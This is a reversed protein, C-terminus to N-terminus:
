AHTDGTETAATRRIVKLGIYMILLLLVAGAGFLAIATSSWLSTVSVGYSFQDGTVIRAQHRGAPLFVSYCDNGKMPAFAIAQGDVSVDTPVNSLSVLMRADSSYEITADRFGYACSLINGTSSLIRTQLEHTSFSGVPTRNVAIRHKGAPVLFRQDRFMPQPTGDISLDSIERPLKLTFAAPSQVMWGDDSEAYQVDHALTYPLFTMDQPNVSQESYITLRPAGIAASRVLLFSETGTQILTPFPLVKEKERFTYINLDLMLKSRDGLLEAYQKGIAEYRLPDTSWRSHPDEVQLVFGYKKQLGLVDNMDVGLQERLEPSGFSDMATVIVQFGPKTAAIRYISSLLREYVEHLKRIRYNVVVEHVTPNSKWYFPSEPDFVKDLDIGRERKLELRASPHAPAFQKPTEFGKGSEFYLEALNVGDFDHAQLLQVYEATMAFVCGSDTLAVTYRWAAPADDGKLTKERWEPHEDWFKKSVQPPELWAYVLIGNAHALRILRDYDYTYKPYQHWGSVHVVRIGHSAWSRVLNEISYTTRNGPEFYVELKERQIFPRLHFYRRVHDLLYPYRSYGLPSNPDFRSSFFMVRGKGFKTGVLLPAETIEDVCFTREINDLEFKPVLEPFKWVIQEEPFFRDRIRFVRLQSQAFSIGLREALESKGDLIMNGGAAVYQTLVAQQKETLSDVIGNPVILLNTRSFEYPEGIFLTDVLVSVSNLVAAFSAQDNHSAGRAFQNWLLTPRLPRWSEDSKFVNEYLKGAANTVKETFTPEHERFETPEAKYYEGPKLDITKSVEGSLRHPSVIRQRIEGEADYYAELLYQDKLKISYSQSGCLIVRDALKVWHTQERMDLFNYNLSRLGDAIEKLLNLDLFSHFFVTSVGDRVQLQAKAGNLVQAVYEESAKKDPNLPIYGLNEPYVTQGFLDKYIIYPFFQSYDVNEISLRQECATSFFKSVTRYLKFSATYHPTEWVLPYLGNRMFEQIGLELKKAIGDETEGKIPSNTGDDWFEFDAATVGKYQHTVGHMVITAGNRVMYQLADVLEPKDSLSLRTGEGPDVFFPIVGVLFPIDRSSLIDAIERLSNPNDFLTVDEIRITAQHSEEHQEGLIDHLLDAFLNYRDGATAYAFPSDAVYWFNGSRIIYPMERRRQANSATAVIKCLSPNTPQILTLHPDGKTFVSGALGTRVVYDPPPQSGSRVQDFNSTSDIGSISFGFRKKLDFRRSFDDMGTNLWVFPKRSSYVEELLRQPPQNHVDFGVYFVVDFYSMEGPHYESTGKLTTRTRFHGMLAALQRGEGVAPSKLDSSGQVIILISKPAAEDQPKPYGWLTSSVGVALSLILFVLTHKM